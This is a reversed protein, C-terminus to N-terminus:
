FGTEASSRHSRRWDVTGASDSVGRADLSEGGAVEIMRSLGNLFM